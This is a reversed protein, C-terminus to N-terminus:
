EKEAGGDPDDREEWIKLMDRQHAVAKKIFEPCEVSQYTLSRGSPEEPDPLLAKGDAVDNLFFGLHQYYDRRHNHHPIAVDDACLSSPFYAASKFNTGNGDFKWVVCAYKGGRDQCEAQAMAAAKDFDLGAYIFYWHGNAEGWRYAVALFTSM